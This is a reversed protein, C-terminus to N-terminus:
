KKKVKKRCSKRFQIFDIEVLPKKQDPTPVPRKPRSKMKDKRIKSLNEQIKSREYKNCALEEFIEEQNVQEKSQEKAKRVPRGNFDVRIRPGKMEQYEAESSETSETEVDRSSIIEPEAESSRIIKPEAESSRIIETAAEGLEKDFDVDSFFEKELEVESFEKDLDVIITSRISMTDPTCPRKRPGGPSNMGIVKASKDAVSRTTMTVEEQEVEKIKKNDFSQQMNLLECNGMDTYGLIYKIGVEECIWFRCKTFSSKKSNHVLVEIYRGDLSNMQSFAMQLQIPKDTKLVSYGKGVLIGAADARIISLDSGSDKLMSEVRLTARIAEKSLKDATTFSLLDIPRTIPYGFCLLDLASVQNNQM